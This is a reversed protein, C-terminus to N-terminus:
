NNIFISGRERRRRSKLFAYRIRYTLHQGWRYVSLLTGKGRSFASVKGSSQHPLLEAGHSSCSLSSLGALLFTVGAKEAHGNIAVWLKEQYYCFMKLSWLLPKHLIILGLHAYTATKPCQQMLCMRNGCLSTPLSFINKMCKRVREEYNRLPLHCIHAWAINLSVLRQGM